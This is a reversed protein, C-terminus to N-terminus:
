TTEITDYINLFKTNIDKKFCKPHIRLKKNNKLLHPIKVSKTAKNIRKIKNIPARHRILLYLYTAM